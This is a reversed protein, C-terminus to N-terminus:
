IAQMSKKTKLGLLSVIWVRTMAAKGFNDRADEFSMHDRIDKIQDGLGIMAGLWFASNAIEDLVTPGSPM